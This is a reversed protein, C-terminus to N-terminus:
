DNSKAHPPSALPIPSASAISALRTSPAFSIYCTSVSPACRTRVPSASKSALMRCCGFLWPQKKWSKSSPAAMAGTACFNHPASCSTSVTSAAISQAAPMKLPVVHILSSVPRRPLATLARLDRESQPSAAPSTAEIYDVGFADLAQAITIKQDTTFRAHAFQEGERLTSDVINITQFCQVQEEFTARVLHVLRVHHRQANPYLSNLCKVSNM